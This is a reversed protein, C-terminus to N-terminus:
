KEDEREGNWTKLLEKRYAEMNADAEQGTIFNPDSSFRSRSEKIQRQLAAQQEVPADVIYLNEKYGSNGVLTYDQGAQYSFYLIDWISNVKEFAELASLDVIPNGYLILAQYEIHSPLSQIEKIQNNELLLVAKGMTLNSLPSIDSVQNNGLDLYVLQNFSSGLPATERIQNDNLVVAKLSSKNELGELSTIENHDGVLVSLKVCDVLPSLDAARNHSINLHVLEQFQNGLASLDRIQNNQLELNTLNTCGELPDISSIQNNGAFLMKLEILGRCADLSSIQNESIGLYALDKCGNIPTLDAIENQDAYLNLLQPFNEVTGIETLKNKKVDLIHLGSSDKLPSLDAVQNESIDFDQLKTKGEMGTIDSISNQSLDVTLLESLGRLSSIDSIQNGSLSLTTLGKCAELPSLDAIQCQDAQLERLNKCSATWSLDSLGTKSYNVVELKTCDSLPDAKVGDLEMNSFSLRTLEKMGGLFELDEVGKCNGMYLRTLGPFNKLFSTGNGLDTSTVALEKIGSFDGSFYQNGDFNEIQSFDIYELNEMKSLPELSTFGTCNNLRIETVSDLETFLELTENNLVCKNLLMGRVEKDRGIRKVMKETVTEESLEIWDSDEIRYPNQFYSIGAASFLIIGGIVGLLVAAITTKKRRYKPPKRQARRKRSVTVKPKESETPRPSEQFLRQQLEEVTRIRHDARVALGKMLVEEQYPSIEGGLRSPPELEDRFSRQLSDMPTRGTICQYITACLAYVDTWPGQLSKDMYQEYPAYGKKVTVTVTKGERQEMDIASGFDLLKMSGDPLVRINDPSIDRHLIGEGHLKILTDMVPCLLQAAREFSLTGNEEIYSKLDQGELYEMVLYVAGNEELYDRVNVIGAEQTFRALNRAEKLFKEKSKPDTSSYEKVAVPINLMEDRALWATGFGGEQIQTELRYREKLLAGKEGMIEDGTM